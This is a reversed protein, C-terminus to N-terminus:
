SKILGPGSSPLAGSVTTAYRARQYGTASQGTVIASRSLGPTALGHRMAPFSDASRIAHQPFFNRKM